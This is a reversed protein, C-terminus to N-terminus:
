PQGRMADASQPKVLLGGIANPLRTISLSEGAQLDGKVLAWKRGQHSVEGLLEIDRRVLRNDAVVYVQQNGYVASYPVAYVSSLKPLQLNISWLDGPRAVLDSILSFIVDIGSASTEGALRELPLYFSEGFQTFQAQVSLGTNLAQEVTERYAVPLKAKLELSNLPYVELVRANAALTEGEAAHVALVRGDFHAIQASRNIALETRALNVEAKALRANLQAIKAQQQDIALQSNMVALEQRVLADRVQDVNSESALNRQQLDQNRKFEAQRLALLAQEKTLRQREVQQLKQEAQLQARVENREAQANVRYLDIEKQDLAFLLEDQKFAQGAKIPMASLQAALPAQYVIRQHSAVTGYLVVEPQWDAPQLSMLEVTWAREQIQAPPTQPKTKKLYQFGAIALVVILLPLLLKLARSKISM